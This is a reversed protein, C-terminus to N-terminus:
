DTKSIHIKAPEGNLDWEEGETPAFDVCLVLAESLIYDAFRDFAMKLRDTSEITVNIRDTIEFKQNRRMTNIKNVIERALGEILLEDNLQLDLAVTLSGECSAAMGEKVKREILTDDPSLEFPEGDLDLSIPNGELLIQIQNQSFAKLASQLSRMKSGIKRGLTRFNPKIGLEVFGVEDKLLVVEKVNLEEAILEKQAEIAAQEKIFTTILFVKALPQRVKVKNEKRLSHGLSVAKQVLEMELELKENRLDRCAHPFDTLHVSSPDSPLKLAQYIADTIFPIFPAAVRCLSILVFYLTQFAENRDRSEEDAWFRSRSRRIYWNTLQDIFGVLPSVAKELDFVDMADKTDLILKQLRSLIWKDIDHLPDLDAKLDPKWDYIKAYSALFFYSNWFPILFSRLVLEVGRESFRLDDGHVAPSNLLYLRVADAGYKDFVITPEPYNKLRKSMKNGDEALIIGNVIVNKFAPKDFLAAGLVTLTYFWGRTQDLGEAIFDSPFAAMTEKANEFPYHNQAYPMSGSEFWCDFVESVRSYVKGDVEFSLDDIFHRHIDEIKKGTHNELEEISGIAILDGESSRWFPIPTGWYRNRSIAWDRAGELWKGFRGEKLHGPVWHIKKNAAIMKDKVKEVNVFWTSVVKYILPSDSRWCFPYRHRITGQYFLRGREKLARLIPKDADKVFVGEYEPIESTFKGNQDVPCVPDIGAAKCIFFDSEGFAPAAHVLGTGDEEGVFEDVLVQFAKESKEFHRFPPKYRMGVLSEGKFTDVVEMEEAYAKIRSKALIYFLGSKPDKAKVYTISPHAIVALNSPLTWPTTTWILLSTKEEDILPMTIVVSPDDVEQYNLNAEFNSLPTGLKASFPMVKYGEYILGRNFLEKFVWWVSEMFPRDMTKYTKDFDVFRGMRDISEKWEETYRLVISRCEENFNAIGFAEISPAGSLEKAKEIENEVPLGHCDWGFRRPVYFGEMTKYRLVVDKITGALIHGYHPLGTAFPPGDYTSFLPQNKRNEVSKKFINESKWKNLIRKERESFSEDGTDFM